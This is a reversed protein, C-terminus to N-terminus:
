VTTKQIFERTDANYEFAVPEWVHGGGTKFYDDYGIYDCNLIDFDSGDSYRNRMTRDVFGDYKGSVNPEFLKGNKCGYILTSTGSGGANVDWTIFSGNSVTITEGLWGYTNSKVKTCKCDSSIFWINVKDHIGWDDAPNGTIGFAELVGDDDYDSPLFFLYDEGVKNIFAELLQEEDTQDKKLEFACSKASTTITITTESSEYGDKQATVTYTGPALYCTYTNSSSVSFATVDGCATNKATITLDSLASEDSADTASASVKYLVHPCAELEFENTYEDGTSLHWDFLKNEEDALTKRLKKGSSSVKDFIKQVDDSLGIEGSYYWLIEGQICMYCAHLEDDTDDLTLNASTNGISVGASRKLEGTVKAGVKFNADVIDFGECITKDILPITISCMNLAVNVEPGAKLTAEADISLDSDAMTYSYSVLGNSLGYYMGTVNSLTANAEIAVSGDVSATLKSTVVVNVIGAVPITITPLDYSLNKSGSKNYGATTEVDTFVNAGVTFHALEGESVNLLLNLETKLSMDVAAYLGDKKSYSDTEYHLTSTSDANGSVFISRDLLSFNEVSVDADADFDVGNKASDVSTLALGVASNLTNSTNYGLTTLTPETKSTNSMLKLDGDDGVMSEDVGFYGSIDISEIVEEIEAQELKVTTNTGKSIGAVKGVLGLPINDSPPMYLIDGVELGTLTKDANKFTVSCDEEDSAIPVNVNSTSDLIVVDDNLVIENAADERITNLSEIYNMIRLIITAAESRTLSGDPQYTGDEYGAILGVATANSVAEAVEADTIDPYTYTEGSEIGLTNMMWIACEGRSLPTDPEFLRSYSSGYMGVAIGNAIYETYWEGDAVDAFNDHYDVTEDYTGVACVLLKTMEAKTLTDEPAFLGDGIGNIVGANTLTVITDYAWYDTAVDTFPSESGNAAFAPVVPTLSVIMTLTLIASIFRKKM